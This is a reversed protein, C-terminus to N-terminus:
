LNIFAKELALLVGTLVPTSAGLVLPNNTLFTVGYTFVAAVLAAVLGKAFRKLLVKKDTTQM